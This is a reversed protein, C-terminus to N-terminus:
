LTRLALLMTVIVVPQILLLYLLALIGTKLASRIWSQEYVRKLAAVLYFTMMLVFAIVFTLLPHLLKAMGAVNVVYAVVFAQFLASQFHLAFVVHDVYFFPRRIYLLKLALALIPVFFILTTPIIRGLNGFFGNLLEQAPMAQLHEHSPLFHEGIWRGLANSTDVTELKLDTLGPVPEDRGILVDGVYVNCKEADPAAVGVFLFFILSTVLYIRVPPTYSARKGELYLQTLRGPIWLNVATRLNRGDLAFFETAFDTLLVSLPGRRSRAAQGCSACFNGTVPEGCNPCNSAVPGM